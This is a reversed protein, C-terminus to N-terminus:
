LTLEIVAQDRVEHGEKSQIRIEWLGRMSFFVQSARYRGPGLKEVTVPSSGHGMDPMWLVVAAQHPIDEIMLNQSGDIRFTEFIFSGFSTGSPQQEWHYNVCLGSSFQAVCKVNSKTNTDETAVAYNPEACSGLSLMMLFPIMLKGFM